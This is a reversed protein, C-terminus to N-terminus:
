PFDAQQLRLASTDVRGRRARESIVIARLQQFADDLRDNIILYDYTSAGRECESRAQLMRRQIVEEADTGRSRLRRELEEMSPPLIFICVADPYKRKISNGGQVDIDFVGIGGPRYSHSIVQKSSGYFNSYVEAWEVFENREIMQRFTTTDVFHYDKGDKELGRPARTTYSVSFEAEPFEKVLMHALTTKGAGSPASLVLLLGPSLAVPLQPNTNM